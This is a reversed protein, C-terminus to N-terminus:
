IQCTCEFSGDSCFDMVFTPSFPAHVHGPLAWKKEVGWISCQVSFVSKIVCTAQIASYIFLILFVIRAIVVIVVVITCLLVFM